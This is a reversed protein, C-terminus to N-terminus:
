RPSPRGLAVTPAMLTSKLAIGNAWYIGTTGAPLIDWTASDRPAVRRVSAVRSGDLTDGRALEGARRGDATPHGPSLLLSRGDALRLRVMRHAPPVPVHGVRLVPAAVRAGAADRTWVTDGKALMRVRVDGSPTAIRAAGDLCIPCGGYSSTRSSVSIEGSRDISGSVSYVAGKSEQERLQFSYRDGAPTFAISALRKSERYIRLRTSDSPNPQPPLALHELIASLKESDAAITPYVELARQLEDGRAIPYYDPDCFFITWRADLRYLLRTPSLPPGPDSALTGACAVVGGALVWGLALAARAGRFSRYWLSM